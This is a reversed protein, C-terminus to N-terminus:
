VTWLSGLRQCEQCVCMTKRIIEGGGNRLDCPLYTPCSNHVNKECAVSGLNDWGIQERGRNMQRGSETRLVWHGSELINKRPDCFTSDPTLSRTKEEM